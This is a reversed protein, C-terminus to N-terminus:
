RTSGTATLSGPGVGLSWTSLGNSDSRPLRGASGTAEDVDSGGSCDGVWGAFNSSFCRFPQKNPTEFPTPLM